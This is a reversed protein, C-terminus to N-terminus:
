CGPRMIAHTIMPTKPTAFRSCSLACGCSFSFLHGIMWRCNFPIALALFSSKDILHIAVAQLGLQLLKPRGNAASFRRIGFGDQGFGETDDVPRNPFAYDLLVRRTSVLRPECLSDVRKGSLEDNEVAYHRFLSGPKADIDQFRPGCEATFPLRGSAAEM